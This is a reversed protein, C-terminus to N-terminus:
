LPTLGKEHKFIVKDTDSFVIALIFVSFQQDEIKWTDNYHLTELLTIGELIFSAYAHFTAHM